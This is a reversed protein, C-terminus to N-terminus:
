TSVFLCHVTVTATLSLEDHNEVLCTFTQTTPNLYFRRISLLNPYSTDVGNIAIAKKGTKSVSFSYEATGGAAITQSASTTSDNTFRSIVTGPIGVIATHDAAIAGTISGDGIGSIDADGLSIGDITDADEVYYVAEPDITGASIMSELQAQTVVCLLKNKVSNLDKHTTLIDFAM